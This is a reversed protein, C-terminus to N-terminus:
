IKPYSRHFQSKPGSAFVFRLTLTQLEINYTIKHPDIWIAGKYKQYRSVMDLGMYDAFTEFTINTWTYYTSNRLKCKGFLHVLKDNGGSEFREADYDVVCSAIGQFPNNWQLRGTLKFWM